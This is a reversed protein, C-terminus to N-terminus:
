RTQAEEGWILPADGSLQHFVRFQERATDPHGTLQAARGRLYFIRPFYFVRFPDIGARPPLPNFKLLGAAENASGTELDCWALLVASSEDASNAYMPALIQRAEAFHRDTLLGYALARDKVPKAAPQPFARDAREMWEASSASPQALFQAIAVTAASAPGALTGAKQAAQEAVSRNGLAVSWVASEAYAEAAAQRWPSNEAARAFEALGAYAQKRNGSIWDWEARYYAVLPDHAEARRDVYQKDLAAAGSVDGTMLRATAAKRYEGGGLLGPVKKGAQLYSSEAERYRGFLLKVDGMSDLANADAPRLSQYRQLARVAGELDGSYATAYGLQNLLSPDEPQLSLAKEYSHAAQRYERANMAAEGLSAWIAPDNPTLRAKESLARRRAAADGNVVAATMALQAREIEPMRDRHGAAQDLLAAAGARDRQQLKWEALAEYPPEFAPDVSIAQEWDHVAAASDTDDLGLAYARLAAPNGTSYAGAQSSIRRALAAAAPLIDAGVALIVETKGTRLDELTLRAEITGRELWYEGYGVRNAGAAQALGREASIGPAREPRRGLTADLTHLRSPSMAYLGPADALERSIIEAFGRGMWDLSADGSLNEFRLIALREPATSSTSHSCSIAALCLM